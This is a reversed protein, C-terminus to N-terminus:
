RVAYKRGNGPVLKRAKGCSLEIPSSARMHWKFGGGAVYRRAEAVAAEM